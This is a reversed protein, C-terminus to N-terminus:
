FNKYTIPFRLNDTIETNFGNNFFCQHVDSDLYSYLHNGTCTYDEGRVLEGKDWTPIIIIKSATSKIWLLLYETDFNTRNFMDVNLSGRSLLLDYHGINPLPLNFYNLPIAKHGKNENYKTIFIDRDVFTTQAGMDRAVDLSEGVGPGLDIFSEFAIDKFLTQYYEIKSPHKTVYGYLSSYDSFNGDVSAMYSILEHNDMNQIKAAANHITKIM